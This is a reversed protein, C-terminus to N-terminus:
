SDAVGGDRHRALYSRSSSRLAESGFDPAHRACAAEDVEVGLGPKEPPLIHGDVVSLPEVVFETMSLPSDDPDVM